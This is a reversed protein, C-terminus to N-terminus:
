KLNRFRGQARTGPLGGAPWLDVRAELRSAYDATPLTLRTRVLKIFTPHYLLWVLDPPAGPSRVNDVPSATDRTQHGPEKQHKGVYREM